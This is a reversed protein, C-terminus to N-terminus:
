GFLFYATILVAFLSFCTLALGINPDDERIRQQDTVIGDKLKDMCRYHM